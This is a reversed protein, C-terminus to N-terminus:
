FLQITYNVMVRIEKAELKNPYSNPEGLLRNNSQSAKGYFLDASLGKLAPPMYKIKGSVEKSSRNYQSDTQAHQTNQHYNMEISLGQVIKSLDSGINFKWAQSGPASFTALTGAAYGLFLEGTELLETQKINNQVLIGPKITPYATTDRYGGIAHFGISAYACAYDFKIRGGWWKFHDSGVPHYQSLDKTLQLAAVQGSMTASIKDSIMIKYDLDAYGYDMYYNQRIANIRIKLNDSTYDAGGYIIFSPIRLDNNSGLPDQMLDSNSGNVQNVYGSYLKFQNKTYSGSFGKVLAPIAEYTKLSLLPMDLVPTGMQLEFNHFNFQAIYGLKYIDDFSDPSSLRGHKIKFLDPHAQAATDPYLGLTNYSTLRFSLINALRGTQFDLTAAQIWGKKSVEGESNNTNLIVQTNRYYNKLSLSLQSDDIFPLQKTSEPNSTSAMSSGAYTMMSLCTLNAAVLIVNSWNTKEIFAM